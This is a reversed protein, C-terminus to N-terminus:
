AYTAVPTPDPLVVPRIPTATKHLIGTLFTRVRDAPAEIWTLPEVKEKHEFSEPPAEGPKLTIRGDADVAAATAGAAANRAAADPCWAALLIQEEAEGLDTDDGAAREIQGMSAPPNCCAEEAFDEARYYATDPGPIEATMVPLHDASSVGYHQTWEKYKEGDVIGITFDGRRILGAAELEMAVATLRATLRAVTPANELHQARVFYLALLQVRKRYKHLTKHSIVTVLPISQRDMWEALAAPELEGTYELKGEDHDKYLVLAARDQPVEFDAVLPGSVVAFRMNPNRMAEKATATFVAERTATEPAGAAADPVFLVLTTVIKGGEGGRWFLWNLLPLPDSGDFSKAPSLDGGLGLMRDLGALYAEGSTLLPFPESVGDRFLMFTPFRNINYKDGIAAEKNADVRAVTVPMSSNYALWAARKYEPEVM